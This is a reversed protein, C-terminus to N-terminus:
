HDIFSTRVILSLKPFLLELYANGQNALRGQSPGKGDSGDGQNTYSPFSTFFLLFLDLLCLLIDLISTYPTLYPFFSASSKPVKGGEGYGSFIADVVDMGRVVRGIPAFGQADLFANDKFNVFLQTTRTNPGAMAYTLTGRSNSQKVPDDRHTPAHACVCM